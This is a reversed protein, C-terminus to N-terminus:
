DRLMEPPPRSQPLASQPRNRRVIGDDAVTAAAYSPIERVHFRSPIPGTETEPAYIQEDGQIEEEENINLSPPALFADGFYPWKTTKAARLDSHSGWTKRWDVVARGGGSFLAKRLEQIEETLQRVQESQDDPERGKDEYVELATVEPQLLQGPSRCDLTKQLDDCKRELLPVQAARSESAELKKQLEELRRLADQQQEAAMKDRDKLSAKAAAVEKDAEALAGEREKVTERLSAVEKELDVRNGISATIKMEAVQREVERLRSDSTELDQKLRVAEGRAADLDSTLMEVEEQHRSRLLSLKSLAINMAREQIALRRASQLLVAPDLEAEPADSLGSQMVPVSAAHPIDFEEVTRKSPTGAGPRMLRLERKLQAVEAETAEAPDTDLVEPLLPAGTTEPGLPLELAAGENDAVGAGASEGGATEPLQPVDEPPPPPLAMAPPPLPPAAVEETQCEADALSVHDPVCCGDGVECRSCYLTETLGDADLATIVIADDQVWTVGDWRCWGTGMNHPMTGQHPQQHHVFGSACSNAEKERPGFLVWVGGSGSALWRDGTVRRWVPWGNVIEGAVVLYEGSSGTGNPCHVLLRAPQGAPRVVIDLDLVWDGSESARTWSGTMEDPLRGMHAEPHCISALTCAFRQVRANRDGFSWTGITSNYLWREGGVQRWIPFDNAMEDPVVVYEGSFPQHGNPSVVYLKQARPHITQAIRQRRAIEPQQQKALANHLSDLLPIKQKYSARKSAHGEEPEDGSGGGRSGRKGQLRALCRKAAQILAWQDEESLPGLPAVRGRTGDSIITEALTRPFSGGDAAWGSLNGELILVYLVLVQEALQKQDLESADPVLGSLVEMVAGWTTGDDFSLRAGQDTQGIVQSVLSGPAGVFLIRVGSRAALLCDFRRWGLQEYVVRGAAGLYQWQPGQSPVLAVMATCLSMYVPLSEVALDRLSPDDQPWSMYPLWLYVDSLPVRFRNAIREVSGVLLSYCRNSPDPHEGPSPEMSLFLIVRRPGAAPRFFRTAEEVATFYMLAGCRRLDEHSRFGGTTRLATYSVVCFPFKLARRAVCAAQESRRLARRGAEAFGVHRQQTATFPLYLGVMAFSAVLVPEHVATSDEADRLDPAGFTVAVYAVVAFAVVAQGCRPTVHFLGALQGLAALWLRSPQHDVSSSCGATLLGAVVVFSFDLALGKHVRHGTPFEWPQRQLLSQWQWAAGGAGLAVLVSGGLLAFFVVDDLTTAGEALMSAMAGVALAAQFFFASAESPGGRHLWVYSAFDEDWPPNLVRWVARALQKM